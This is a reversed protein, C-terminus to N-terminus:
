ISCVKAAGEDACAYAGLLWLFRHGGSKARQAM